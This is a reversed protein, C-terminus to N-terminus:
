PTGATAYHLYYVFYFFLPATFTLSDMRDLIGGQGPVATGSDKVGADRKVASMNLDGLVGGSAILLGAVFAWLFPPNGEWEGIRLTPGESWPTLLPALAVALVLTTIAGGILGEWTKGPSIGPILRRKGFRRGILAQAVDNSETLLVLYILWGLNGGAPNGNAPLTLLLAAHSFCYATLMLGWFVESLDKLYDSTGGALITRACLFLFMGVPLFVPFWDTWGLLIWGYHLAIGAQAWFSAPRRTRDQGSLALYERFGLVSIGGLLAAAWFRGGLAALSFLGFIVWWSELSKTSTKAKDTSAFKLWTLRIVSGMALALLIGALVVASGPTVEPFWRSAAASLEAFILIM